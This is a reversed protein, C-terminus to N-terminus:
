KDRESRIRNQLKAAKKIAYCLNVDLRTLTDRIHQLERAVRGIQRYSKKRNRKGPNHRRPSTM